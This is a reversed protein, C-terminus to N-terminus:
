SNRQNKRFRPLSTYCLYPLLVVTPLYISLYHKMSENERSISFISSDSVASIPLIHITQNSPVSGLQYLYRTYM